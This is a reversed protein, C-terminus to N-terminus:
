HRLAETGLCESDVTATTARTSVGGLRLTSSVLMPPRTSLRKTVMRSSWKTYLRGDAIM